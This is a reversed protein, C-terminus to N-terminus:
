QPRAEMLERYDSVYLDKAAIESHVFGTTAKQAVCSVLYVPELWLGPQTTM